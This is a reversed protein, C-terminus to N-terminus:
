NSAVPLSFSGRGLDELETFDEKLHCMLGKEPEPGPISRQWDLQEEDEEQYKQKSRFVQQLAIAPAFFGIPQLVLRFALLCPCCVLLANDTAVAPGLPTLFPKCCESSSFLRSSNDTKPVKSVLQTKPNSFFDNEYYTKFTSFGHCVRLFSVLVYVFVLQHKHYM